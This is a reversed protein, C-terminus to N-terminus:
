DARAYVSKRERAPRPKLGFGTTAPAQVVGHSVSLEIFDIAKQLRPAHVLIQLRWM